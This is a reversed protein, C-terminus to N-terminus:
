HPHLIDLARESCLSNNSPRNSTLQPGLAPTRPYLRPKEQSLNEPKQCNVRHGTLWSTATEITEPLPNYRTLSILKIHMYIHNPINDPTM